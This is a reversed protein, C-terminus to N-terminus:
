TFLEEDIVYTSPKNVHEWCVVVPVREQALHIWGMDEWGM